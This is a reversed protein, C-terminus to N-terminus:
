QVPSNHRILRRKPMDPKQVGTQNATRRALLRAYRTVLPEATAGHAVVNLLVTITIVAV